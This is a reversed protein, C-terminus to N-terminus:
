RHQSVLHPVQLDSSRNDPQREKRVELGENETSCLLFSLLKPFEVLLYLVVHKHM